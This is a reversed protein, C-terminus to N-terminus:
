SEMSLLCKGAAECKSRQECHDCPTFTEETKVCNNVRKKKGNKKITKTGKKTYGKWCSSDLRQKTSEILRTYESDFQSHQQMKNDRVM